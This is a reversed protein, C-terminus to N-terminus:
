ADVTLAFPKGASVCCKPDDCMSSIFRDYSRYLVDLPFCGKSYVVTEIHCLYSYCEDPIPFGKNSDMVVAVNAKPHENDIRSEFDSLSQYVALVEQTIKDIVVICIADYQDSCGEQSLHRLLHAPGFVHQANVLAQSMITREQNHSILLKHVYEPAGVQSSRSTIASVCRRHPTCTFPSSGKHRKVLAKLAEAYASEAMGALSCNLCKSLHMVRIPM